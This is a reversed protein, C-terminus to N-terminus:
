LCIDINFGTTQANTYPINHDLYIQNLVSSIWFYIKWHKKKLQKPPKIISTISLTLNKPTQGMMKRVDHKYQITNIKLSCASECCKESLM